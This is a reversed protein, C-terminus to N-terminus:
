LCHIEKVLIAVTTKGLILQLKAKVTVDLFRNQRCMTNAVPKM